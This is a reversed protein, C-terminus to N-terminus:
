AVLVKELTDRNYEQEAQLAEKCAALAQVLEYAVGSLIYCRITVDFYEWDEDLFKEGITKAETCFETLAEMCLDTNDMVYEKATARCFTYSGSANGTVSDAIWCDDNLKETLEDTDELAELLEALTFNDAIYDLLDSKMADYYNYMINGKRCKAKVAAGFLSLINGTGTHQPHKRGDHELM